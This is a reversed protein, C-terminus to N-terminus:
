QDFAADAFATAVFDGVFRSWSGAHRLMAHGDGEVMRFRADAGALTARHVYERSRNPDTVRDRNGHAVRLIRGALQDVPEEAELWPALACVGAVLGDGACWLATRGGMSHGIVLVRAAPHRRRVEDLAWQVDRVPDLAPANWGRVRYRLRWVAARQGRLRRGAIWAFPIMRLSALHYPRSRQSSRARGGSLVLVVVGADLPGATTVILRPRVAARKESTKM